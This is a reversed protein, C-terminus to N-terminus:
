ENLWGTKIGKERYFKLAGPHIKADPMGIKAMTETNIFNGLPNYGQFKHANQWYVRCIEDVVYDPMQADVGWQIYYGWSTWPNKQKSNLAGAPITFLSAPLNGLSKKAAMFSDPDISIFHVDAVQILELLAPVPFYKSRQPNVPFACSLAADVLRDRLARPGDTFGLYSYKVNKAGGHELISKPFDVAGYGPKFGLSVRKGSLDKITKINPDLTLLGIFSTGILSTARFGKYPAGEFPPHGTEAVWVESNAVHIVTHSRMEPKERLLKLNVGPGKSAVATARLWHSDKNIFEALAVGMVYAWSGTYFTYIQINYPKHPPSGSASEAFATRLPLAIVMICLFVSTLFLNRGRKM